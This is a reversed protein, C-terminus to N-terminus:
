SGTFGAVYRADRNGVAGNDDALENAGALHFIISQSMPSTVGLAGARFAALFTESLM